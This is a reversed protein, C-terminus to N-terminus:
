FLRDGQDPTAARLTFWASPPASSRVLALDHVVDIALLTAGLTDGAANIIRARYRDPDHVIQAVVHYNTIVDGGASVFFGSGLSAKAASGSESIEIKVVREGFQRFVSPTGGPRAQGRLPMPGFAGMPAWGFAAVACGACALRMRARM